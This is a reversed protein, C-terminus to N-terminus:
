LEEGNTEIVKKYWYFSKKKIRKLEKIEKEDRDIYVFGYRKQYGNLWSLLDTFSWTCYGLLEVGDTIAEKCARVHNSLYKIRRKLRIVTIVSFIYDLLIIALLAFLIIYSVTTPILMVLADSVPMFVKIFGFGFIGALLAYPLSIYSGISLKSQSYDWVKFGLIKEFLFGSLVIVATTLAISAALLLWPYNALPTLVVRCIVATLGYMPFFPSTLFGNNKFRKYVALNRIVNGVWGLFSFIVFTWLILVM